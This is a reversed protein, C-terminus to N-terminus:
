AIATDLGWTDWGDRHARAFLEVFDTYDEGREYEPYMSEILEYVVTPKASHGTREGHFVSSPRNQPAPILPTGRKAILLLEHQQRAYYGMGIRDKVWVMCTRYGFDWAKVIALGDALKPSTTWLFLTSDDAAPVKLAKIEDLAMTGYQNEIQRTGSEAGEYRWPPDVYLLAYRRETFPVERASRRRQCVSVMRSLSIAPKGSSLFEAIEQDVVDAFEALLRAAHRRKRQPQSLNINPDPFMKINPDPFMLPRGKVAPGLLEGIRRVVIVRSAEAESASQKLQRLRKGAGVLWAELEDLQDEDLDPVLRRVDVVSQGLREASAQKPDVLALETSV